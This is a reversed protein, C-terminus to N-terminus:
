RPLRGLRAPETVLVSWYGGRVTGVFGLKEALRDYTSNGVTVDAKCCSSM